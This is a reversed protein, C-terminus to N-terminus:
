FEFRAQVQMFRSFNQANGTVEGFQASTPSTNPAAVLTHNFVDFCEFRLKLNARETLPINRELNANLNSYGQQRVGPVRSPFVRLNYTGLQDAPVTDFNKTKFWEGYTPHALKIDKPNAGTYIVNGFGLLAGEQQEYAADLKFGGFAKSMWGDNALPKNKGFPLEWTGIGAIRYPRSNNSPEWSPTTDFSNAFWDQDNQWNLQYNIAFSLGNSYRRRLSFNLENFKSNGVPAYETLTGLEPYPELLKAISVNSSTFQSRQTLVNQYVVPSSTALDSMNKYSFPNDKVTGSLASNNPNLLNGGTFYAAPVSNLNQSVQLRTTWSGIYDVHLVTSSGFQKEVTVNWRQQRAPVFYKPYFSWSNGAIAMAGLSSGLPQVFNSGTSIVPFPNTAPVGGAYPNAGVWDGNLGVGNDTTSATTTTAAFGTLDPNQNLVNNTDYFLGYGGRIVLSPRLAYAAAFRPLVRWSNVWARTGVGNVGAYVSGGTINLSAPPPPLGALIAAAYVPYNAAYATNVDSATPLTLNPDFYMMQRNASETPGYEYEFRLGANITLKPNV